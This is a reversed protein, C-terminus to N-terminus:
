LRKRMEEIMKPLNEKPDTNLTELPLYGTYGAGKIIATLQDYDVPVKKGNHWVLEKIQWTIAYKVLQEIEKYPDGNPLSGIDLHLGVWKSNVGLLVAETEDADVLLDNHNQLALMVGHKEAISAALKLEEVVQRLVTKKDRGDTIKKGPFVRLLPAGLKSAVQCWADILARDDTRM